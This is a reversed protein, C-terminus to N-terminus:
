NARCRRRLPLGFGTAWPVAPAPTASAFDREATSQSYAVGDTLAIAGSCIDNSPVARAMIKLQGTQGAKGGVLIRYPTGASGAFFLSAQTGACAFGADDNCAVPTLGDCAGSFVQLTTDFSSGCTTVLVLGSFAPTFTFWVGNSSNAACDPLPDGASTAETTPMTYTVGNTLPFAQSCTDNVIPLVSATVTLNGTGAWVLWRGSDLLDHRGHGWHERQRSFRCVAAWQCIM